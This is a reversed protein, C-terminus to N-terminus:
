DYTFRIPLLARRLTVSAYLNRSRANKKYIDKQMEKKEISSEIKLHNSPKGM